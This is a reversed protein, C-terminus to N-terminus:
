ALHNLVQFLHGQAEALYIPSSVVTRNRFATGRVSHFRLDAVHSSAMNQHEASCKSALAALFYVGEYTSQGISNLAPAREGFRDHYREVFSM